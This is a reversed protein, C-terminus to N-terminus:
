WHTELAIVAGDYGSLRRFRKIAHEADKGRIVAMANPRYKEIIKYLKM